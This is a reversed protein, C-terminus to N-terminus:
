FFIIAQDMFNNDKWKTTGKIHQLSTKHNEAYIRACTTNFM